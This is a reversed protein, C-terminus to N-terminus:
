LPAHIGQGVPTADGSAIEEVEVHSANVHLTTTMSMPIPAALSTTMRVWSSTYIRLTVFGLSSWVPGGM